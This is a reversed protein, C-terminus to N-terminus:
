LHEDELFKTKALDFRTNIDKINLKSHGMRRSSSYYKRTDIGGITSNSSSLNIDIRPGHSIMEDM